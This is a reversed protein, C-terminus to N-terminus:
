KKRASSRRDAILSETVAGSPPSYKRKRRSSDKKDFDSNIIEDALKIIAAVSFRDEGDKGTISRVSKAALTKADVIQELTLASLKENAWSGLRIALKHIGHSSPNFLKANSVILNFDSQVTLSHYFYM